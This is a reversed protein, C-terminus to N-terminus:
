PSPAAPEPEPEAAAAHQYVAGEPTLGWLNKVNSGYIKEIAVVGDSFEEWSEGGDQTRYVKGDVALYATLADAFWLSTITGSLKKVSALPQWTQGLDHSRWLSAVKLTPTLQRGGALWVTEGQRAIAEFKISPPFGLPFWEAGGDRTLVARGEGILLLGNQATLFLIQHVPSD